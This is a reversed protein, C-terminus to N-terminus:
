LGIYFLETRDIFLVYNFADLLVFITSIFPCFQASCCLLAAVREPDDRM